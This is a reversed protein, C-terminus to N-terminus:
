QRASMAPRLQQLECPARQHHEPSVALGQLEEIPRERVPGPRRCRPGMARDGQASETLVLLCRAAVGFRLPMRRAIGAGQDFDGLVEGGGETIAFRRGPEFPRHRQRRAVHPRSEAEGSNELPAAIEGAGALHEVTRHTMRRCFGAHDQRKGVRQRRGAAEGLGLPLETANELTARVIDRGQATQRLQSPHRVGVRRQELPHCPGIYLALPLADSEGIRHALDAVIETTMGIGKGVEGVGVGALPPGRRRVIPCRHGPDDVQHDGRM